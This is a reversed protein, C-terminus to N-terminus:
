NSLQPCKFIAAVPKFFCQSCSVCAGLCQSQSGPVYLFQKSLRCSLKSISRGTGFMAQLADALFSGSQPRESRCNEDMSAGFAVEARMCCHCAGQLVRKQYLSYPKPLDTRRLSELTYPWSELHTDPYGLLQFYSCVMSAGLSRIRLTM